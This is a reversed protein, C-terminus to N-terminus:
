GDLTGEQPVEAIILYVSALSKLVGADVYARRMRHEYLDALHDRHLRREFQSLLAWFLSRMSRFGYIGAVTLSSANLERLLKHLGMLPYSVRTLGQQWEPLQRGLLSTQIIYVRGYPLLAHQLRENFAADLQPETWVLSGVRVDTDGQQPSQRRNIWAVQSLRKSLHHAYYDSSVWLGVPKGAGTLLTACVDFAYWYPLAPLSECRDYNLPLLQM